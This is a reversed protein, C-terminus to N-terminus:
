KQSEEPVSSPVNNIPKCKENYKIRIKRGNRKIIILNEKELKKIHYSITSNLMCLSKSINNLSCNPNMKIYELIKETTGVIYKEPPFKSYYIRFKGVKESKVIGFRELVRLHHYLTGRNINLQKALKRFHVGPNHQLYDLIRFRVKTKIEKIKYVM